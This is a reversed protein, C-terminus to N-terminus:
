CKLAMYVLELIGAEDRHILGKIVPPKGPVNVAEAAECILKSRDSDFDLHRGYFEDRGEGGASVNVIWSNEFVESDLLDPLKRTGDFEHLNGSNGADM